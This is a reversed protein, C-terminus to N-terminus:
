ARMTAMSAAAARANGPTSATTVASSTASMWFGHGARMGLGTGPVV